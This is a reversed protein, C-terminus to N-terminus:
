QKIWTALSCTREDTVSVNFIKEITKDDKLYTSGISSDYELCADAAEQSEFYLTKKRLANRSYTVENTYKNFSIFTCKDNYIIATEPIQPAEYIGLLVETAVVANGTANIVELLNTLDVNQFKAELAIRIIKEM